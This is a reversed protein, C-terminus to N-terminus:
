VGLIGSGLITKNRLSIEHSNNNYMFTVQCCGLMVFLCHEHIVHNRRYYSNGISGISCPKGFMRCKFAYVCVKHYTDCEASYRYMKGPINKPWVTTDEGKIECNKATIDTQCSIEHKTINSSKSCNDQKCVEGDSVIQGWTSGMGNNDTIHYFDNEPTISINATSM